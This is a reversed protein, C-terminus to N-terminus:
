PQQNLDNGSPMQEIEAITRGDVSIRTADATQTIAIGHDHRCATSTAHRFKNRSPRMAIDVIEEADEKCIGRSELFLFLDDAQRGRRHKPRTLMRHLSRNHLAIDAASPPTPRSRDPSSTSSPSQM